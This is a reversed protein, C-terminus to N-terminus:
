PHPGSRLNGCIQQITYGNIHVRRVELQGETDDVLRKFEYRTRVYPLGLYKNVFEQITGIFHPYSTLKFGVPHEHLRSIIENRAVKTHTLVCIGRYPEVWKKALILLKAAVLTTKGSGPCAQIDDSTKIVHRRVEDFLWHKHVDKIRANREAILENIDADSVAIDIM